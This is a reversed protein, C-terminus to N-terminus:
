KFDTTQIYLFYVYEWKVEQIKETHGMFFRLHRENDTNIFEDYHKFKNMNSGNQLHYVAREMQGADKM